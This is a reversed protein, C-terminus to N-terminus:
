HLDNPDVKNLLEEQATAFKVYDVAQVWHEETFKFEFDDVEPAVETLLYEVSRAFYTMPIEMDGSPLELSDHVSRFTQWLDPAATELRYGRSWASTAGGTQVANGSKCTSSETRTALPASNDVAATPAQSSGVSATPLEPRVPSKM